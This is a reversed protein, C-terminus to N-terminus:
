IDENYKKGAQRHEHKRIHRLHKKGSWLGVPCTEHAECRARHALFASPLYLKRSPFVVQRILGPASPAIGVYRLSPTSNCNTRDLGTIQTQTRAKWKMDVRKRDDNTVDGINVPM